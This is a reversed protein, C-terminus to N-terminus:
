AKELFSRVKSCSQIALQLVSSAERVLTTDRDRDKEAGIFKNGHVLNHRVQCVGNLFLSEVNFIPTVKAWDTVGGFNSFVEPPTALLTEAIRSQRVNAFFQEGLENAFKKWDAKAISPKTQLFGCQTLAYEVRGFLEAFDQPSDSM